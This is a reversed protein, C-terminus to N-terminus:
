RADTANFNLDATTEAPLPGAGDPDFSLKFQGATARRNLQQFENFPAFLPALFGIGGGNANVTDYRRISSDTTVGDPGVKANSAYLIGRSDVAVRTPSGPDFEAASGITAPGSGDLNYTNVRNNASDALFVTGTAPNANPASVAIGSANRPGFGPGPGTLGLQGMGSGVVGAKCVDGDAAVCVEYGTGRDGPGSAVVDFGFSRLFNGAGDYVNVRNNAM